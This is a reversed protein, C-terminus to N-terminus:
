PTASPTQAEAQVGLSAQSYLMEILISELGPVVHSMAIKVGTVLEQPAPWAVEQPAHV